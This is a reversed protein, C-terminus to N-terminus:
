WWCDAPEVVRCKQLNRNFPFLDVDEQVKIQVYKLGIQSRSPSFNRDRIWPTDHRAEYEEVTVKWQWVTGFLLTQEVVLM